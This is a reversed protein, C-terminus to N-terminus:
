CSWAHGAWEWERARVIRSESGVNRRKRNM